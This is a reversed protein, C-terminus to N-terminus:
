LYFLFMANVYLPCSLRGKVDASISALKAYKVPDCSIVPDKPIEPLIIGATPIPSVVEDKLKPDSVAAQFSM